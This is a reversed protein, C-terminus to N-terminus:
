VGSWATTPYMPSQAVASSAASASDANTGPMGRMSRTRVATANTSSAARSAGQQVLRSTAAAASAVSTWLLNQHIAPAHDRVLANATSVTTGNTSVPAAHNRSPLVAIGAARAASAASSPIASAVSPMRVKPAGPSSTDGAISYPENASRSQPATRKPTGPAQAAM